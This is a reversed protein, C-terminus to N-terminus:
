CIKSADDYNEGAAPEAGKFIVDKLYCLYRDLNQLDVPEGPRRVPARINSVPKSKSRAQLLPKQRTLSDLLTNVKPKLTELHSFDRYCCVM